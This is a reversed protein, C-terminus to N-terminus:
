NVSRVSHSARPDKVEISTLYFQLDTVDPLTKSTLHM